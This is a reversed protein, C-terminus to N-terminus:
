VDILKERNGSEVSRLGAMLTQISIITDHAPIQPEGSDVMKMFQQLARRFMSFNDYLDHHSSKNRGFIELHFVRGVNGLADVQFLSGNDMEIAMSDHGSRLATVAVPRAVTLNLVADIM